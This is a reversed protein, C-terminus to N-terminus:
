VIISKSPEIAVKDMNGIALGMIHVDQIYNRNQCSTDLNHIPSIQIELPQIVQVSLATPKDDPGSLIQLEISFGGCGDVGRSAQLAVLDDPQCVLLSLMTVRLRQSTDTQNVFLVIRINHHQGFYIM